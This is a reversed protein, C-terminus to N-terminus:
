GSTQEARAKLARNMAAFGAETAQLAGGLLGVLVGSFREGQVFRTAGAGEPELLFYHEGDFIGGVLLRGLWRLERGPRVVLVKPRFSMGGKGPPAIRVSLREGPQLPGSLATIFPNWEAMRGFDTLISWVREPPAAIDISTEIRRAM